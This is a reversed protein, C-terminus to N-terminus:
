LKFIFRFFEENNNFLYCKSPRRERRMEERGRKRDREREREM